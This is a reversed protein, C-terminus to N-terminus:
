KVYTIVIYRDGKERHNPKLTKRMVLFPSNSKKTLTLNYLNQPEGTERARSATQSALEELKLQQKERWDGVNVIVRHWEGLLQRLSLAVFKQLSNVTEGKKGILLGAEEDAKIDINLCDNEKNYSTEAKSKSGILKLLENIVKDCAGVVEKNNKIVSKEEKVKTKKEKKVNTKKV